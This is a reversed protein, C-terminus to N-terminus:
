FSIKLGFQIIRPAGASSIVGFQRNGLTSGPVGFPPTNTANFFEARFQIRTGESPYFAKYLAFDLNSVGPGEIPNRPSNGFTFPEQRQFAETNFWRELSRESAPLKPDAVRNPRCPARGGTNCPDGRVGIHVMRGSNFTVIGGVSWGGLLTNLVPHADTLFTRQRGFPLDYNFSAVFRHTRHEDALAREPRFNTRDQVGVPTTGGATAGGRSDSIAKSWTYSGLFSLGASFRRKLFM